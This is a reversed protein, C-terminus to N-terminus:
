PCGPRRRLRRVGATEISAVRTRLGSPLVGARRRGRGSAGAVSRTAATDHHDDSMPSDGRCPFAGAALNGTVPSARDGRTTSCRRAQWWPEARLISSTTATSRRSRPDGGRGQLRAGGHPRSSTSSRTSDVGYSTSSIWRTSRSSSTPCRWSCLREPHSAADARDGGQTGRVLVVAVDATSAGTVM